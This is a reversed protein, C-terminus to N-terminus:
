YISFFVTRSTKNGLRDFVTFDIQHPGQTLTKELKYSVEEKIPQYAFFVPQNNISLSFSEENPEIGSIRDNVLIRIENVDNAKYGGGNGPHMSLIKPPELDQIITVADFETMSATLIQKKRNNETELYTWEEKKNNFYYLGLNSHEVLDFDYRIAVNFENRLSINFPQLQYVSSLHFGRDIEAHDKVKEIWIVNTQYLTSPFVQVSCNKDQSIIITENGPEAVASRFHFRTERSLGNFSLEADIYKVDVLEQHPLMESLFVNPQIQNLGFSKFTNNNALKISANANVYKDLQLQFFIGRNTESVDLDPLIDIVSYQPEFPAWHYPEAMGGLQNIALIQLIQNEADDVSLTIHLNKRVRESHVYDIKKNPYGYPTFGYIVADRIPLGGQKPSISLTFVMDNRLIEEVSVSMPFTGAIVGRIVAKNNAADSINIEVSHFGPQAVIIGKDVMKHIDIKPHEESRYLKQYEGLNKRKLNYEIITNAHKGQNFPIKDYLLEFRKKGDFILEAHKFQYINNSGQRKDVAEIAFGFEGFASITDPLFYEGSRDRFLPFTQPLPSANILSERSLPIIAISKPIPTVKDSLNFAFELPNLPESNSSRYEYHIHPAYSSGTNGSYGILDGKEVPFERSSFNANVKYSRRKAQQLRWVKELVPTFKELHAYVVENGTKTKIYIAKGYGTYNSVMRSIYGSHSAFVEHGTTGRTKIDLGMHFHGDRYEGFNSSFSTSAKTPWEGNKPFSFTGICCLILIVPLKM